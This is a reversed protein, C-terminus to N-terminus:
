PRSVHPSGKLYWRFPWDAAQTIGVRTTQVIPGLDQCTKAREPNKAVVLKSKPACIDAGDLDRDIKLAACLKGPGSALQRDPLEGRRRRMEDMGWLPHVARVLVAEGEGQPRCVTNFCCHFGYILYVYSHGPPGWMSKNRKTEGRFAHCAPDNRIYAETEVIIGGVGQHVLFHGLLLPAVELASPEYFFRPLPVLGGHPLPSEDHGPARM